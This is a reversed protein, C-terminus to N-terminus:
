HSCCRRQSYFSNYRLLALRYPEIEISPMLGDDTVCVSTFYQSFINARKYDDVVLEGGASRLAGISTKGKIRKNIFRYFAGVNNSEIIKQEKRIEFNRILARSKREAGRYALTV